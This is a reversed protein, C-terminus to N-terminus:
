SGGDPENCASLFHGNSGVYMRKILPTATYYQFKTVKEEDVNFKLSPLSAVLSTIPALSGPVPHMVRCFTPPALVYVM